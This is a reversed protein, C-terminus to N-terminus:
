NGTDIDYFNIEERVDIHRSHFVVQNDDTEWRDSLHMDMDEVDLGTGWRINYRYGTVFPAAWVDENPFMLSFNDDDELYAYFADNDETSEAKLENELAPPM